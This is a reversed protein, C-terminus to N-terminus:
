ATASQLFANPQRTPYYDLRRIHGLTIASADQRMLDLHTVTPLTASTDQLGSMTGNVALDLDNAAYVSAMKGAIGDTISGGLVNGQAVGGDTVLWRRAGANAYLIMEEAGTGANNHFAAIAPTAGVSNTVDGSVILTGTAASFETSLTRICRDAARTVSVTTTPMLSSPFAASEMQNGYVDIADGSTVIRIGFVPNTVAAQTIDFRQWSSTLTKTTWGVGGDLTMQIDGTGTIRRMWVSYARTASASVVTQVSLANGASATLRTASNTVGDPGTSTKATTMTTKVWAANTHDNSHLALNTRAAEMLLGLCNGNSDYEVRPQDYKASAVTPLYEGLDQGNQLQAGWAYLSAASLGDFTADNDGEAVYIMANANTNVLKTISCRYWGSGASTMSMSVVGGNTGLVGSGLNFYCTNGAGLQLAAWSRTGAKLYVSLTQVFGVTAIGQQLIHTNGATGDENITDATLTGDPATESNATVTVRTKTWSANDMTQSQLFQNENATQILGAQGVFTSTSNRTFTFASTLTTITPAAGVAKLVVHGTEANYSIGDHYTSGGYVPGVVGRVMPRVMSRM